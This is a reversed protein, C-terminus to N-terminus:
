QAKFLQAEGNGFSWNEAGAEVVSILVDEPRVGPDRGLREVIARYMAMKAETPKGPTWFIQIQVLDASRQIGLFDGYAFANDSHETIAMFRDGDKIKVTERMAEYIQSLLTKKYTEPKGERIAIRTIPM